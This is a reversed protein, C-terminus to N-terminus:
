RKKVKVETKRAPSVSLNRNGSNSPPRLKNASNDRKMQVTVNAERSPSNSLAGRNPSGKASSASQYNDSNKNISYNTLHMMSNNYNSKKPAEYPQTCFRALGEDSVWAQVPDVGVAVVYCRLDFKYGNLLLPRDLYRQVTFPRGDMMAAPLSHLEKFLTIGAGAKGSDPKAIFIASPHAKQYEEFRKQERSNPLNFTTPVFNYADPALKKCFAM